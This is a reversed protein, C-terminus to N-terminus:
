KKDDSYDLFAYLHGITALLFFSKSMSKITHRVKSSCKHVHFAVEHREYWIKFKYWDNNDDDNTAVRIKISFGRPM